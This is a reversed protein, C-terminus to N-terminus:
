GEKREYKERIGGESGHKGGEGGRKETESGPRVEKVEGRRGGYGKEGREKM